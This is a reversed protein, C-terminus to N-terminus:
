KSKNVEISVHLPGIDINISFVQRQQVISATGSVGATALLREIERPENAHAARVLQTSYERDYGVRAALAAVANAAEMLQPVREREETQMTM